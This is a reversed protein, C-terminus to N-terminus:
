WNWYNLENKLLLQRIKLQDLNTKIENYTRLALIFDSVPLTGRNLQNKGLDIQEESLHLQQTTQLILQDNDALANILATIQQQYQKKFFTEYVSRVNEALGIKKFELQKQKGDYIPLSFNLGFSTGFNRYLEAPQSGLLGGDAFWSLRPKYNAGALLKRNSIQLSDIRYSTLFRSSSLGVLANGAIAPPALTPVATDNIGCLMNLAYVDSRYQYSEQKLAIEQAQLAVQFTTYDFAKYIGKEELLKLVGSEDKLLQLITTIHALQLLDSYAQIYQATISRSLEHTTTIGSNGAAQSELRLNEYQPALIQKNLLNQSVGMQLAYNGGNTVANDYGYNNWVPAVMVQGLLNVQPKRTASIKLSDYRSSEAQNRYDNLQPSNALGQQLYYGLTGTQGECCNPILLPLLLFLFTCFRNM